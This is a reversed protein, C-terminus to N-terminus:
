RRRSSTVRGTCTIKSSASCSTATSPIPIKSSFAGFNASRAALADAPLRHLWSLDYSDDEADTLLAETLGTRMSGALAAPPPPVVTAVGFDAPDHSLWVGLM